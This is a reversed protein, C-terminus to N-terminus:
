VPDIELGKDRRSEAWNLNSLKSHPNYTTNIYVYTIYLIDLVFIHFALTDRKFHIFHIFQLQSM